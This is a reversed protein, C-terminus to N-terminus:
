ARGVSSEVQPHAVTSNLSTETGIGGQQVREGPVHPIRWAAVAALLMVAATSLVAPKVATAIGHSKTVATFISGVIAVGLAGGVQRGTTNVGSATGVRSPDVGALIVNTLQSNTFGAGVGYLALAPLLQVFTVGERLLFAQAVLAVVDIAVGLRVVMTTGVARAVRVGLRAGVITAVGTPCVWLGNEMASLHRSEQLFLPIVLVIGLQGVTMLFAVIAGYRFWPNRFESLAFLPDRGNREKRLEVRVFVVLLVAAAVFAIPVVSLRETSSWLVAGGITMDSIPRWWGYVNSQTFGFVLAFTGTAILGAGLLDIRPRRGPPDDKRLFLLCGVVLAPAVLVNIGFAWRWSHYTTLYGGVLPGLATTAGMVAGWTAFATVRENDRFSTSLIALSAPTLLAAGMGEIVCEGVVLHAVDTSLAALLSGIGFLVAGAVLARRHGLVDGLRGGIVLLSAFVLMYGSLVWQVAPLSADLDKMITPVSVTLVTSDLIVPTIALMALALAWWRRPDLEVADAARVTSTM